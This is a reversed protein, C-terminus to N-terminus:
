RRFIRAHADRKRKSAVGAVADIGGRDCGIRERRERRSVNARQGAPDVSLTDGDSVHKLNSSFAAIVYPDFTVEAPDIAQARAHAMACEGNITIHSVVRAYRHRASQQPDVSRGAVSEAARHRACRAPHGAALDDDGAVDALIRRAAYTSSEHDDSSIGA